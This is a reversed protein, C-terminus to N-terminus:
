PTSRSHTSMSKSAAARVASAVVPLIDPEVVLDEHRTGYVRAVERAHEGESFKALPFDISFTRVDSAHEAMYSVVLSSDIGGSLLVGVPVDAVMRRQVATRLREVLGDQWDQESWDSRDEDRTFQPNWYEHDSASGDPEVTRVTAPPLKRVGKLITRPAPVVSHFTLYYSLATRDISTDVDGAALLAQVTSAFRLRAGTHDVYLPKIGLRDRALVGRGTDREAIVFAFMGHLHSVVDTGWHHYGKLIVETDSHSFFRYGHGELEARLERYDYICGNYVATLGLENDVM